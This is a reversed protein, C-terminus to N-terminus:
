RRVTEASACHRLDDYAETLSSSDAISFGTNPPQAVTVAEAVSNSAGVLGDRRVMWYGIGTTGDAVVSAGVLEVFDDELSVGAAGQLAVMPELQSRIQQVAFTSARVCRDDESEVSVLWALPLAMVILLVAVVLVVRHAFPLHGSIWPRKASLQARQIQRRKLETFGVQGLFAGAFGGFGSWRVEGLVLWVAGLFLGGVMGFTTVQALRHRRPWRPDALDAELWDRWRDDLRIGLGRYAAREFWSPSPSM